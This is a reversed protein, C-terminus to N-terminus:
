KLKFLFFPPGCLAPRPNQERYPGPAVRCTYCVTPDSNQWTAYNVGACDARGQGTQAAAICGAATGNENYVEGRWEADSCTYGKGAHVTWVAPEPTEDAHVRPLLALLLAPLLPLLMRMDTPAINDCRQESDTNRTLIHQNSHTSEFSREERMSENPLRSFIAGGGLFPRSIARAGWPRGGRTPM